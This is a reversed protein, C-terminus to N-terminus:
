SEKLLEVKLIYRTTADSFITVLHDGPDVISHETSFVNDRGAREFLDGATTNDKSLKFDYQDTCGPEFWAIELDTGPFRPGVTPDLFLKVRIKWDGHPTEVLFKRSGPFVGALYHGNDLMCGAVQGQCVPYVGSCRLEDAGAIFAAKSTGPFCGAALIAPALLILALRLAPRDQRFNIHRM